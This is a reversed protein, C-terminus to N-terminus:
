KRLREVEHATLRRYGGPALGKLDLFGVKTRCLYTVPLGLAECMRRVQHNRGETITLYFRSNEKSFHEVKVKAPQTVGDELKVGKELIAVKEENLLGATEVLYTKSIKYKPHTLRNALDGDDTLLILGETNYDLRGVPFLRERGPIFDLVTKRRQPDDCTSVVGIPKYLLLYTMAKKPALRRGGVSVRDKAPDVVFGMLTVVKENVKVKGEKIMEEAQRRSALGCRAMYKQLREM